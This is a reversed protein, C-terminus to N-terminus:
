TPLNKVTEFKYSDIELNNPTIDKSFLMYKTQKENIVLGMRSAAIKLAIFTEKLAPLACAIVDIDDAYANSFRQQLTLRSLKILKSPIGFDNMANLLNSGNVTDFTSKFDIFLHHTAVNFEVNNERYDAM